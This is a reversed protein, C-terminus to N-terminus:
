IEMRLYVEEGWSVVRQIDKPEARHVIASYLDKNNLLNNTTVDLAIFSAAKGPELSGLVEHLGLAQAGGQTAIALVQQPPVAAARRSQGRALRSFWDMERFMNPSTFMMNDTGLALPVEAQILDALPPIGDALICNTRPCCVVPVQAAKLAELDGCVPNTLHVLLDPSHGLIRQVESQSWEQQCVAQARQTEATHVALMGQRNNLIMRIASLQATSFLAVDGLGVGNAYQALEDIEELYGDMRPSRIAEGLIIGKMPRGALVRRLLHTGEVGGERFDGFATIGNAWMEEIARVLIQELQLSSLEKLFQYKLGDPPSAAQETPLGIGAEKLGADAIHTHADVFAPFLVAGGLNIGQAIAGSGIDVIRDGEVVLYANKRIKLNPGALITVNHYVAVSSM